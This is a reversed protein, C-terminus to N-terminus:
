PSSTGSIAATLPGAIPKPQSIAPRLSIRMADSRALKPTGFLKMDSEGLLHSFVKLSGGARVTRDTLVVDLKTLTSFPSVASCGALLGCLLLLSVFTARYM